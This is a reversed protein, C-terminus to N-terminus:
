RARAEVDVPSTECPILIVTGDDTIVKFRLTTFPGGRERRISTFYVTGAGKHGKVRFSVDINGQLMKVSGSVWPSGNLYWTPEPRVADGLVTHVDESERLESLVRRMASSSLREQNAAYALFAAWVGVGGVCIALIGPWARRYPPLDRPQPRSYYQRPRSTSSFTEPPPLDKPPPRPLRNAFTRRPNLIAPRRAPRSLLRLFM